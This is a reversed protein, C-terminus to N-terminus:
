NRFFLAELEEIFKPVVLHLVKPIENNFKGHALEDTFESLTTIKGKVKLIYRDFNLVFVDYLNYVAVLQVKESPEKIHQIISGKLSVSKLQSDENELTYVKNLTM